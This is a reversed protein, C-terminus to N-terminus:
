QGATNASSTQLDSARFPKIRGSADLSAVKGPKGADQFFKPGLNIRRSIRRGDFTATFMLPKEADVPTGRFEVLHSTGGQVDVPGAPGPLTVRWGEGSLQFDDLQGAAGVKIEITGVYEQGSAAPQLKDPPIVIKVPPGVDAHVTPTVFLLTLVTFVVQKAIREISIRM